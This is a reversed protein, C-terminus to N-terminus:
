PNPAPPLLSLMYEFYRITNEAREPTRFYQFTVMDLSENMFPLAQGSEVFPEMFTKPDSMVTPTAADLFALGDIIGARNPDPFRQYLKNMLNKWRDRQAQFAPSHAVALIEVRKAHIEEPDKTKELSFDYVDLKPHLPFDMLQFVTLAYNLSDTAGLFGGSRNDFRTPQGYRYVIQGSALIEPMPLGQERYSREMRTMIARHTAMYREVGYPLLLYQPTIWTNGYADVLYLFTENSRSPRWTDVNYLEGAEEVEIKFRQGTEDYYKAYEPKYVFEYKLPPPLTLAAILRRCNITGEDIAPPTAVSAAAVATSHEARACPLVGASLAVIM